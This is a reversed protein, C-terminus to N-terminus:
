SALPATAINNTTGYTDSSGSPSVNFALVIALMNARHSSCGTTLARGRRWSVGACHAAASSRGAPGAGLFNATRLYAGPLGMQSRGDAEDHDPPIVFVVAAFHSAKIAAWSLLPIVTRAKASLRPIVGVVM